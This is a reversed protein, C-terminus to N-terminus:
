ICGVLVCVSNTNCVIRLKSSGIPNRANEAAHVQWAQPSGGVLSELNQKPRPLNRTLISLNLRFGRLTDDVIMASSHVVGVKIFLALFHIDDYDNPSNVISTVVCYNQIVSVLFFGETKPNDATNV